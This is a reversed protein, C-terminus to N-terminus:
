SRELTHRKVWRSGQISPLLLSSVVRQGQYWTLVLLIRAGTNGKALLLRGRQPSLRSPVRVSPLQTSITSCDCHPPVMSISIMALVKLLMSKRRLTHCLLKHCDSVKQRDTSSKGSICSSVTVGVIGPMCTGVRPDVKIGIYILVRLISSPMLVTQNQHM